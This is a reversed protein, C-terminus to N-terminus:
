RSHRPLRASRPSGIRRSALGAFQGNPYKALYDKFDDPNKSDKPIIRFIVAIKDFFRILKEFDVGVAISIIIQNKYDIKKELEAAM